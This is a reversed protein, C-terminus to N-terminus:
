YYRVFSYEVNPKLTYKVLPLTSFGLMSLIRRESTEVNNNIVVIKVLKITDAM